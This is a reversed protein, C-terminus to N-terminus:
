IFVMGARADLEHWMLETLHAAISVAQVLVFTHMLETLHAATGCAQVLVLSHRLAQTV